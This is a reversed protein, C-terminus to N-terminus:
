PRHCPDFLFLALLLIRPVVQEGADLTFDARGIIGGVAIAVFLPDSARLQQASAEAQVGASNAITFCLAEREGHAPQLGECASRQDAHAKPRGLRSCAAKFNFIRQLSPDSGRSLTVNTAHGRVLEFM